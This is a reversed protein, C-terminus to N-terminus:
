HTPLPSPAPPAALANAPSHRRMRCSPPSIDDDFALKGRSQSYLHVTPNWGGSMCLLDCEIRREPGGSVPRVIAAKVHKRGLTRAVLHGDIIDIRAAVSRVEYASDNNTFVVAKRGPRVAYRNVYSQAASALMVGPRDNGAFVLAREIAGTAIVVQGARVRWSSQFVHDERPDREAILLLNHERYAWVTANELRTVNEM